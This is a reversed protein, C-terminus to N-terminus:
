VPNRGAQEEKVAWACPPCLDIWIPAERVRRGVMAVFARGGCVLCLHKAGEVRALTAGAPDELDGASLPECFPAAWWVRQSVPGPMPLTM